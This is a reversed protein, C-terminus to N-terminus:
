SEGGLGVAQGWKAESECDHLRITDLYDVDSNGAFATEM